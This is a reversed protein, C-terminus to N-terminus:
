FRWIKVCLWCIKLSIRRSFWSWRWSGWSCEIEVVPRGRKWMWGEKRRKVLNRCKKWNKWFPCWKIKWVWGITLNRSRFGKLRKRFVSWSKFCSRWVSKKMRWLSSKWKRSWRGTTSIRIGWFSMRGEASMLSNSCKTAM